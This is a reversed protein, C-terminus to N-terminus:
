EGRNADLDQLIEEAPRNMFDRLAKESKRGQYRFVEASAAALSLAFFDPSFFGGAFCLVCAVVLGTDVGNWRRAENESSMM